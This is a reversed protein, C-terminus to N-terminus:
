PRITITILLMHRSIELVYSSNRLVFLMEYV